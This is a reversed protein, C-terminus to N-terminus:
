AVKSRSLFKSQVNELSQREVLPISQLINLCVNTPDKYNKFQYITKIDVPYYKGTRYSLLLQKTNYANQRKVYNQYDQFSLVTDFIFLMDDLLNDRYEFEKSNGGCGYNSLFFDIDAHLDTSPKISLGRYFMSYSALKRFSSTSIFKKVKVQLDDYAFRNKLSENFNYSPLISNFVAQYQLALHDIRKMLRVRLVDLGFSTYRYSVNGNRNYYHYKLAKRLIYLPIFVKQELGTDDIRYCYGNVYDHFSLTQLMYDGIGNSRLNFPLIELYPFLVEKFNGFDACDQLSIFKQKLLSNIFNTDKNLYKSVYKIPRYSSVLGACKSWNVNGYTWYKNVLEHFHPITVPYNVFWLFHYHPRFTEHGYECVMQYTCSKKAFCHRMSDIFHVVHDRNFCAVNRFRPLSRNDYTLTFYYCCGGVARIGDFHYQLRTVIDQAKTALCEDCVGCPVYNYYRDVVSDFDLKNSKIYLKNLCM